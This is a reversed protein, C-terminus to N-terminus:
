RFRLAWLLVGDVLRRGTYTLVAAGDEGLWAGVRREAAPTGDALTEGDDYCFIAAHSSDAPSTAIVTATAPVQGWGLDGTLDLEVQGGAGYDVIPHGPDVIDVGPQALDRGFAAAPTMAMDDFLQTEWVVVPVLADRFITGVQSSQVTASLLILDQGAADGATVASDDISTTRVGRLRLREVIAADAADLLESRAVLLAERQRWGDLWLPRATTATRGFSDTVTLSVWFGHDNSYNASPYIRRATDGDATGGDGFSWEFDVLTAGDFATSASADFDVTRGDPGSVVTAFAAVPRGECHVAWCVAADILTWGDATLDAATTDSLFTSVRRAPAVHGAMVDGTEHAVTAMREPRNGVRAVGTAGAGPRGYTLAGATLTVTVAGDFGASLPHGPDRITVDTMSLESGYDLGSTTGTMGLDDLVYPEWVVVPVAVDRFKTGVKNSQVTSSILVLDHGAADQTTSGGDDIPLVNWGDAVLHDHIAQDGVGLVVNGVVFLASRVPAEPLTGLSASSGGHGDTHGADVQEGGASDLDLVGDGVSAGGATARTAISGRFRGPEVEALTVTEQDLTGNTTLVATTTGAAASDFVEVHVRQGARRVVLPRGVADILAIRSAVVTATGTAETPGSWFSGELTRGIATQLVEDYPTPPDDTTPLTGGEYLGTDPLDSVQISAHDWNSSDRVNWGITEESHPSDIGPALISARVVEGLAVTTTPRGYPDLFSGRAYEVTASTALSGAAADLIDPSDGTGPDYIWRSALVGDGATWSYESVTQLVGVFVGSDAATEVLDVTEADGTARSSVSAVVMEIQGSDLNSGADELRLRINSRDLVTSTPQGDDVFNLNSTQAPAPTGLCALGFGVVVVLFPPLARHTM